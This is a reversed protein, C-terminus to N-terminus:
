EVITPNEMQGYKKEMRGAIIIYGIGFLGFMSSIMMSVITNYKSALLVNSIVIYVLGIEMAIIPIFAFFFMAIILIPSLSTILFIWKTGGGIFKNDKIEDEMISGLIYSRWFPIWARYIDEMGKAKMMKAQGVCNLVYIAIIPLLVLIIVGFLLVGEWIEYAPDYYQSYM